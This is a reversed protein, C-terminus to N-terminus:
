YILISTPTLSDISTTKIGLNGVIPGRSETNCGTAGIVVNGSRGSPTTGLFLAGGTQGGGLVINGTTTTNFLQCWSSTSSSNIYATSGSGLVLQGASFPGTIGLYGAYVSGNTTIDGSVTLNGLASDIFSTNVTNATFSPTYFTGTNTFTECTINTSTLNAVTISDDEIVTGSGDDFSKIGNMSKLYYETGNSSSM